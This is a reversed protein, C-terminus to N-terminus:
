TSSPLAEGLEGRRADYAARFVRREYSHSLYFEEGAANWAFGNHLDTRDAVIRLGGGLTYCHLSATGSDPAAVGPEPDFMVGIWFRGVPDCLGENFRFLTSDFPPAQLLTALDTALDLRFVGERTAVVASTRDATLAFAGIDSAVRWARHAGTADLRHLAPEKVDIWYLAGDAPSWTPSEGIAAGCDYLVDIDSM